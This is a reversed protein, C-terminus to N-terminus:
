AKTSRVIRSLAKWKRARVSAATNPQAKKTTQGIVIVGGSQPIGRKRRKPPNGYTEPRKRSLWILALRVNRIRIGEPIFDGCEDTAYADEGEFGMDVLFPDTKFVIEVALGFINGDLTEFAEDVAVEFAEHFRWTFGQWAIDYGDHGARSCRIWREITKRHLGAEGAASRIVPCKTLSDLVLRMSEPSPRRDSKPAGPVLERKTRQGGGRRGRRCGFAGLPTESTAAKTRPLPETQTSGNPINENVHPAPLITTPYSPSGHKPLTGILSVNDGADKRIDRSSIECNPGTLAGGGNDPRALQASEQLVDEIRQYRGKNEELWRPKERNSTGIYRCRDGFATFLLGEAVLNYDIMPKCNM